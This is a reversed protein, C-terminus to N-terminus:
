PLNLIGVLVIFAGNTATFTCTSMTVHDALSGYAGVGQPDFWVNDISIAFPILTGAPKGDRTLLDVQIFSPPYLGAGTEQTRIPYTGDTGCDLVAGQHIAAVPQAVLGLIAAALVGALVFRRRSRTM